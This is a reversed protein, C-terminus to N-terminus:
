EHGKGNSICCDKEHKARCDNSCFVKPKFHLVSSNKGSSREFCHCEDTEVRNGYKIQKNCWQCTILNNNQKEIENLKKQLVDEVEKQAEKLSYVEKGSEDKYIINRYEGLKEKNILFDVMVKGNNYLAFDSSAVSGKYWVGNTQMSDLKYNIKCYIGYGNLDSIKGGKSRITKINETDSDSFKGIHYIMLIGGNDIWRPVLSKLDFVKFNPSNYFSIAEGIPFGKIFNAQVAVKGDAYMFQSSGDLLDDKFTSIIMPLDGNHGNKNVDWIKATGNRKGELYNYEAVLKTTDFLNDSIAFLRYSGEIKYKKKSDDYIANYHEISLNNTNLDILNKGEDKSELFSFDNYCAPKLTYKLCRISKNGNYIYYYPLGNKELM